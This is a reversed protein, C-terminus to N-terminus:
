TCRRRPRSVAHWLVGRLHKIDRIAVHELGFLAKTGVPRGRHSKAMDPNVGGIHPLSVEVGVHRSVRDAVLSRTIGRRQSIFDNPKRSRGQRKRDLLAHEDTISACHGGVLACACLKLGCERLLQFVVVGAFDNEINM